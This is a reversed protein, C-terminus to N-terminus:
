KGQINNGKNDKPGNQVRDNNKKMWLKQLYKEKILTECLCLGLTAPTFGGLTCVKQGVMCVVRRM